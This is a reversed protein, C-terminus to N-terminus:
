GCWDFDTAGRYADTASGVTPFTRETLLPPAFGCQEFRVRVVVKLEDFVLRHDRSALMRDLDDLMDCATSEIDTIPEATVIIWAGSPLGASVPRVWDRFGRANPESSKARSSPDNAPWAGSENFM